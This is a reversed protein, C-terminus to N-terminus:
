SHAKMNKFEVLMEDFLEKKSKVVDETQDEFKEFDHPDYRFITWAGDNYELASLNEIWDGSNLYTVTKNDKSFEKIEPHHIHGCVVYKFNNDVAINAATDEFKNIYKVASKVRNKINKSLSYKEKGLSTLIFNSFTNIRILFDYGISGLRTLWRSHQMTVDFVDGHFFWAKKNELKLVLKNEIKFNRVKLGLFKRFIEDHNGPLFYVKTGNTIEKVIFKLIKMHSKPWYSKKFQWVDIIDGNLILTNFKISKLYKLLEKAHCGFTGLHIDSIVVLDVHRKEM